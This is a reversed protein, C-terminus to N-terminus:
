SALQFLLAFAKNADAIFALLMFIFDIQSISKIFVRFHLVGPTKVLM